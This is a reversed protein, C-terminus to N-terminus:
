RALTVPVLLLRAWVAVTLYWTWSKAMVALGTLTEVLTPTATVDVIVTVPRLRNVPVTVSTVDTVGEVPSLTVQLGELM